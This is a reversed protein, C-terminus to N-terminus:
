RKSSDKKDAEAGPPRILEFYRRIAQRHGLPVPEADLAAESMQRYKQYVDRQPRRAIDLRCASLQAGRRRASNM